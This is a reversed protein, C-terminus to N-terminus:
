ERYELMKNVLDEGIQDKLADYTDQATAAFKKKEEPTLTTVEVGADEMLQGYEKEAAISYELQSPAIEKAVEEVIAQYEKPLQDWTNSSIVVALVSYIHDTYTFYKQVEQFKSGYTLIPGNDQGDVVGQQLATYLENFAMPTPVAGVRAFWDMSSPNEVVRLKLGKMDELSKVPHQSNSLARNSHHWYSLVKFGKDNAKAALEEGIEGYVIENRKEQDEPFIYPLDWVQYEPVFNGMAITGILGMEVTGQQMGELTERDGGLQSGGYLEVTVTGDTRENVADAFQLAFKEWPHESDTPGVHGLKLTYTEKSSSGSSSVSKSDNSCAALIFVMTMLTFLLYAKINKM